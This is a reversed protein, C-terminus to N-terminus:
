YLRGKSKCVPLLDKVTKIKIYIPSNNMGGAAARIM